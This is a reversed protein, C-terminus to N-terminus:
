GLRGAQWDKVTFICPPSGPRKKCAHFVTPGQFGRHGNASYEPYEGCKSCPNLWSARTGLEFTEASFKTHCYAVVELVVFSAKHEHALRAMEAIADEKSKHIRYRKGYWQEQEKYRQVIWYKKDQHKVKEEAIIRGLLEGPSEYEKAEVSCPIEEKDFCERCYALMPGDGHALTCFSQWTGETADIGCKSCKLVHRGGRTRRECEPCLKDGYLDFVQTSKHCRDCIGEVIPFERSGM